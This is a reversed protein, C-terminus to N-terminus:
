KNLAMQRTVRKQFTQEVQSLVGFGKSTGKGLGVGSPLSINASFTINFTRRHLEANVTPFRMFGLDDIRDLFKIRLSKNPIEYGIARCFGLIHGTLLKELFAIRDMLAPMDQWDSYNRPNFPQWMKLQYSISKELMIIDNSTSKSTLDAEAALLPLIKLLLDAGEQMALFGDQHYQVLPIRYIEGGEPRRNHLLDHQWLTLDNLWSRWHQPESISLGEPSIKIMKLKM